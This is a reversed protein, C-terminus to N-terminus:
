TAGGLVFSRWSSVHCRNDAQILRLVSALAICSPSFGATGAEKYAAGIKSAGSLPIDMPAEASSYALRSSGVMKKQPNTVVASTSPDPVVAGARSWVKRADAYVGIEVLFFYLVYDFPTMLESPRINLHGNLFFRTKWKPNSIPNARRDPDLLFFLLQELLSYLVVHKPRSFPSSPRRPPAEDLFIEQLRRSVTQQLQRWFDDSHYVLTRVAALVPLRRAATRDTRPNKPQRLDTRPDDGSRRPALFTSMDLTANRFGFILDLEALETMVSLAHKAVDLHDAGRQRASSFVLTAVAKATTATGEPGPSAVGQKLIEEDNDAKGRRQKSSFAGPALLHELVAIRFHRLLDSFASCITDFSDSAIRDHAPDPDDPTAATTATTTATASSVGSAEENQQASDEDTWRLRGSVLSFRSIGSTGDDEDYDTGVFHCYVYLPGGAPLTKNTAKMKQSDTSWTHGSTSKSGGAGPPCPPPVLSAQVSPLHMVDRYHHTRLGGGGATDGPGNTEADFYMGSRGPMLSLLDRSRVGRPRAWKNMIYTVDGPRYMLNKLDRHEGLAGIGLTPQRFFFREYVPPFYPSWSLPHSSTTTYRPAPTTSTTVDGATGPRRFGSSRPAPLLAGPRRFGSSRPAPIKRLLEQAGSVLADPGGFRWETLLVASFPRFKQLQRRLTVAFRTESEAISVRNSVPSSSSSSGNNKAEGVDVQQQKSSSRRVFLRFHHLSLCNECLMVSVSWIVGVGGDM